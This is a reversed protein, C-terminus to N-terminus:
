LSAKYLLDNSNRKHISTLNEYILDFKKMNNQLKFIGQVKESYFM